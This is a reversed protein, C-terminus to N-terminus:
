PVQGCSSSQSDKRAFKNGSSGSGMGWAQFKKDGNLEKRVSNGSFNDSATLSSVGRKLVGLM